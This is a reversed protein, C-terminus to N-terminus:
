TARVGRAAWARATLAISGDPAVPLRARLTERLRQRAGEDLRSVYGPAPGQGSLFPEWYDAFDRFVTPVDIARVEVQRLGAAEFLDNLAPRNCIPFRPGEDLLAAAPDLTVAADWFRRLMEMRVAYDWVCIAVTGGTRAVRALEALALPPQPVFNLALGSVALDVSEAAVPLARADAVAFGARVGDLRERAQRLYTPSLDLAVIAGAGAEVAAAALAGSGCGLDLWRAGPAAGLWAVFERAVPRSWRGMYREYASGETWRDAAPEAPM